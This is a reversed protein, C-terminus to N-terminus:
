KVLSVRRVRELSGVRLRCFYVGPSLRRGVDNTGDWTARQPGSRLERDILVRQLAGHLDHIALRARSGDLEAPIQFSLTTRSDFPNPQGPALIM